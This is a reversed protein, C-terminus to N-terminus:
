GKIPTKPDWINIDWWAKASSLLDRAWFYSLDDYIQKDAVGEHVDHGLETCLYLARGLHFRQTIILAHNGPPLFKSLNKCSEYTRYGHFDIFIDQEPVGHDLLYKKMTSIEDRKYGGDDGTILLKKVKKQQYADIGTDLRDQLVTSPTQTKEYVSAGLIMGLEFPPDTPIQTSWYRLQVHVIM